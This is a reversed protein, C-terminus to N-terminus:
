KFRSSEIQSQKVRYPKTHIQKGFEFWRLKTWSVCSRCLNQAQETHYTFYYHMNSAEPISSQMEFLIKNSWFWLTAENIDEPSIYKHGLSIQHFVDYAKFNEQVWKWTFSCSVTSLSSGSFNDWSNRHFLLIHLRWLKIYIITKECLQSASIPSMNMMIQKMQRKWLHVLM